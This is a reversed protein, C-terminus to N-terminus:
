PCGWSASSCRASSSTRASTSPGARSPTSRRRSRSSRRDMEQGLERLYDGDLQIGRARDAGARRRPAAGPRPLARRAEAPTLLRGRSACRSRRPRRPAWGRGSRKSPSTAAPRARAAPGLWGHARGGRHWVGRVYRRTSDYRSRASDLLYAGADRRVRRGRAGSRPRLLVEAIKADHVHKRSRRTPSCRRRPRALVDAHAPAPAGLYRHRLPLYLRTRGAMGPLAFGLGVLETRVASPGTGCCRWGSARRRRSRPPWRRCRPADRVVRASPPPPWRWPRRRRGASRRGASPGARRPPRCRGRESAAHRREGDLRAGRALADTLRTFELERFLARAPRTSRSGTCSTWRSRCRCTRACACWSARCACRRAPRWWRRAASARSRAPASWCCRSRASATSSSPPRRPASGKSGRCTTSPDGM